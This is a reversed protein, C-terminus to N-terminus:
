ASGGSCEKWRTLLLPVDIPLVLKDIAEKLVSVYIEGTYRSRESVRESSRHGTIGDIVGGPVGAVTLDTVLRHRFPHFVGDAITGNKRVAVMGVNDIVRAVRKGLEDGYKDHVASKALDSFLQEDGDRGIVVAELFGLQILWHHLPVYRPSWENKVLVEVHHLDFVWVGAVQRVHMVKLQAFEERRMGHLAAILPAWYLSDRIIVAGPANYFYASKRGMWVPHQFLEGIQSHQWAPREENSRLGTVALGTKLHMGKWFEDQPRPLKANLICWDFFPSIRSLHKNVTVNSVREYKENAAKAEAIVQRIPKRTEAESRWYHRPLKVLVARFASMDARTYAAVPKDGCVETWIRTTAQVEHSASVVLQRVDIRAEISEAMLDGFLPGATSSQPTAPTPPAVEDKAAAEPVRPPVAGPDSQVLLGSVTDQKGQLESPAAPMSGIQHQLQAHHNRWREVPLGRYGHGLDHREAIEIALGLFYTALGLTLGHGARHLDLPDAPAQLGAEVFRAAVFETDHLSQGIGHARLTTEALEALLEANYRPTGHTRGKALVFRADHRDDDERWSQITSSIVRSLDSSNLSMDCTASAFFVDVAVALRRAGREASDKDVVGLTACIETQALRPRLSEPIRRRFFSTRGKLRLFHGFGM